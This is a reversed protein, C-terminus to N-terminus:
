CFFVDDEVDVEIGDYEGDEDRLVLIKKIKRFIIWEELVMKGLKIKLKEIKVLM